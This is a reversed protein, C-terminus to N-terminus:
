TRGPSLCIPHSSPATLLNFLQRVQEVLVIFINQFDVISHDRPRHSATIIENKSRFQKECRRSYGGFEPIPFNLSGEDEMVGLDTKYCRPCTNRQTQAKGKDLAVKEVNISM